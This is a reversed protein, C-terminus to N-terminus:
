KAGLANKLPSIYKSYNKWRGISGKYIPRRVQDYSATNVVRISKHFELCSGEWPLDCFELITRVSQETDLVMDEYQVELVPLNLVRKWHEMLRLYQRYYLGLHELNYSYSMYGTFDQFYCSLCTDLPDRKCHIIRANPFLMEISGLHLFNNPLKDTVRSYQDGHDPLRALYKNAMENLTATKIDRMCYPYGSGGDRNVQLEKLTQGLYVLEGAGFVRSHSDLVQEVLSTGSRPMGVIFIMKDSINDSHRAEALFEETYVELLANMKLPLDEPDFVCFKLNNAKEYYKFAKEYSGQRDHLEAVSFYLQRCDDPGPNEGDLINEIQEIAKDCQSVHRCISAFMLAVSITTIGKDILPRLCNYADEHRGLHDYLSAVGAMAAESVPHLDLILQATEICREKQGLYLCAHAFGILGALHGPEIDLINGFETMAEDLANGGGELLTTALTERWSLSDPELAVAQRLCIVAKDQLGLKDLVIGKNIYAEAYDSKISIAKDLSELAEDLKGQELQISGLKYHLESLGPNLQSAKLFLREAGALDSRKHLLDALNYNAHFNNPDKDIASVFAKEAEDIKGQLSLFAGLKNYGEASDPNLQLGRKVHQIASDIENKARCVTALFFHADAVSHDLRISQQAYDVAADMDGLHGNVIAVLLLLEANSTEKCLQEGAAKAGALDGSNVLNRITDVAESM